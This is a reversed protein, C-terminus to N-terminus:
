IVLTIPPPQRIQQSLPAGLAGYAALYSLPSNPNARHPPLLRAQNRKSRLLSPHPWMHGSDAIVKEGSAITGFFVQRPNGGM